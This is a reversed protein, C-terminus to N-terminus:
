KLQMIKIIYNFLKFLERWNFIKEINNLIHIVIFIVFLSAFFQINVKNVVNMALPPKKM